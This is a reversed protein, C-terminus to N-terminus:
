KLYSLVDLLSQRHDFSPWYELGFWGQYGAADIADALGRYQVEGNFLENRYPISSGHFHGIYPLYERITNILNGEMLQTHYCDYLLKIRDSGVARLVDAAKKTTDLLYGKNDYLSNLMEITITVCEQECLEALRKLNDILVIQERAPDIDGEAVHGTYSTCGLEKGLAITEKVQKEVIEYPANLRVDWGNVIGCQVLPINQKSLASAIKKGDYLAPNYFEVAQAGCEKALVIRENMPLDDFM